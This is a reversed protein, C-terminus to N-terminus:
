GRRQWPPDGYIGATFTGTVTLLELYVAHFGALDPVRESYYIRDAIVGDEGIATGGNLFGRNADTLAAAGFSATPATIWGRQTDPTARTDSTYLHERWGWLKARTTLVGATASTFLWIVHDKYAALDDMRIGSLVGGAMAPLVFGADVVNEFNNANGFAGPRKNRLAVTAAGGSAATLQMGSANVATIIRDRMNDATAGGTIDILINKNAGDTTGVSANSDLEFWWLRNGDWLAFVQGDVFNAGAVTTMNATAPVAQPPNNAAALDTFFLQQAM